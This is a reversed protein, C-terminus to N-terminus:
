GQFPGVEEIVIRTEVGSFRKLMRRLGANELDFGGLCRRGVVHAEARIWQVLEAVSRPSGALYVIERVDSSSHYDYRDVFAALGAVRRFGRDDTKNGQWSAAWTQAQM